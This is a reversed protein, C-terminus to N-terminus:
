SLGCLFCPGQARSCPIWNDLSGPLRSSSAWTESRCACELEVVQFCFTASNVFLSMPPDGHKKRDLDISVNPDTHKLHGELLLKHLM